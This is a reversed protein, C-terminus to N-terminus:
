MWEEMSGSTVFSNQNGFLHSLSSIDLLTFITRSTDQCINLIFKCDIPVLRSNCLVIAQCNHNGLFIPVNSGRGSGSLLGASIIHFIDGNDQPHLPILVIDRELVEAAMELWMHDVFKGSKAMDQFWMEPKPSLQISALVGSKFARKAELVVSKRFSYQILSATM